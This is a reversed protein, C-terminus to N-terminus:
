KQVQIYTKIILFVHIYWLMNELFVLIDDSSVYFFLCLSSLTFGPTQSSQGKM